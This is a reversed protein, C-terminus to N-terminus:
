DEYARAGPRPSGNSDCEVVLLDPCARMADRGNAAASSIIMRAGSDRLVHLLQRNKLLPNAPVFIAGLRSCALACEIVEPRNQLYTVVRDGRGIGLGALAAALARSRENLEEYTFNRTKHRLAVRSAFRAASAEFFEHFLTM